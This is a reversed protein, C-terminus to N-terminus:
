LLSYNLKDKHTKITIKVKVATRHLGYWRSIAKKPVFLESRNIYKDKEEIIDVIVEDYVGVWNDTMKQLEDKFGSLVMSGEMYDNDDRVVDLSDIDLTLEEGMSYGIVMDAKVPMNYTKRPYENMARHIDKIIKFLEYPHIDVYLADHVFSFCKSLMQNSNIYNSVMFLATGAIDSSSGQIPFNQAQRLKQSFKYKYKPDTKDPIPIKIIRNTLTTVYGTEKWMAHMGDIWTKLKPFASYFKDLMDEAQQLDGGMFNDAINKANAGYLIAFTVMKSFRREADSVEEPPKRWVQSNHVVPGDYLVIDSSVENADAVSESLKFTREVNPDVIIFNHHLVVTLDYVDYMETEPTVSVIKLESSGLTLSYSEVLDIIAIWANNGNLWKHDYTCHYESGDSLTVKVRRATTNVKRPHYAYGLVPRNRITDRAWVRFVDHPNEYEDALEELSKYSGDGMLILTDGRFCANMRHIDANNRFAELMSDEDASCAIARVEMQSNHVFVGSNDGLDILFNHYKDVEMDYVESVEEVIEIKAVKHNYTLAMNYMKEIGYESLITSFKPRGRLKYGHHELAGNYTEESIVGDGYEYALRLFKSYKQYRKRAQYNIDHGLRRNTDRVSDILKNYYDEDSRLTKMVNSHLERYEPNKWAEKMWDSVLKEHEPDSHWDSMHHSMHESATVLEINAKRNDLKNHNKHHRYIQSKDNPNRHGYYVGAVLHHTFEELGNPHKIVEYGNLIKHSNEIRWYLPMLSLGVSLEDARVYMGDRTLFPHNDTCKIVSGNDLTIQYMKDVTKTVRANRAIGPRVEGSEHDYSYVEFESTTGYKDCLEKITPSTGDLLKIRTDPHLCYDPAMIVGGKYRSTYINKISSGTPITHMASKWRGTDATCVNWPLTMITDETDKNFPVFKDPNDYDLTEYYDRKRKPLLKGVQDKDVVYVSSRGVRGTIYSTIMKVCKKYMRFDFLWTFELTWTTKDEVDCGMLKFLNYLSIMEPERLSTIRFESSSKVVEYLKPDNNINVNDLMMSFKDFILKQPIPDDEKDIHDVSELFDFMMKTSELGPVTTIVEQLTGDPNTVEQKMEWYRDNHLKLKAWDYIMAIKISNTNLIKDVMEYHSSETSSPNYYKKLDSYTQVDSNIVEELHNDIDIKFLAYLEQEFKEFLKSHSVVLPGAEYQQTKKNWVQEDVIDYFTTRSKTIRTQGKTNLWQIMKTALDPNHCEYIRAPMKDYLDVMLDKLKNSFLWRNEYRFMDIMLPSTVLNKWSQIATKNYWDYEDEAVQDNWKAGAMELNIGAFYQKKTLEYGIRLDIKSKENHTISMVKNNIEETKTILANNMYDDLEYTSISDMAGYKSLINMPIMSYPIVSTDLGVLGIETIKEVFKSLTFETMCKGTIFVQMVALMDMVLKSAVGSYSQSLQDLKLYLTDPETIRSSPNFIMDYISSEIETYNRKNKTHHVWYIYNIISKASKCYLGLVSDWDGYGLYKASAPKLGAPEKPYVIRCKLMTDEIKSESFYYKLNNVSYPVEYQCNHVVVKDVSDFVRVLLDTIKNWDDDSMTYELSERLVYVGENASFANSFGIIRADSSLPSKANTEIDYSMKSNNSCNEIFSLYEEYTKACYLKKGEVISDPDKLELYQLSPDWTVEGSGLSPEADDDYDDLAESGLLDYDSLEQDGDLLNVKNDKIM